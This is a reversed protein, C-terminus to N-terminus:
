EVDFRVARLLPVIWDVFARVNASLLRAHPYIIHIPVPESEHGRLIRKLRGADLLAKAQYSLFQGIGIGEACAALATDIQNSSFVPEVAVANPRAAGGFTFEPVPTLSTFSVTRHGALDRPAKPTGSRRLYAPSACVVRRVQGVPIAVLSSEPLRGIRVGVDIGEEVLDVVRDLLLLEVRLEAYERMFSTIAPAVHLRGFLVSSTVRLRGTPVSRRASLVAEAEGVAALVHTCREYYERGEDTLGIRRTTRNLLRVQLKAELAALTRVVSPVSAGLVGAAGTLSGSDVICVFTEMARLKDMALWIVTDKANINHCQRWKNIM